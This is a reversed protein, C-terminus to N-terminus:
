VISSLHSKSGLTGDVQGAQGAKCKLFRSAYPCPPSCLATLNFSITVPHRVPWRPLMCIVRIRAAMKLTM